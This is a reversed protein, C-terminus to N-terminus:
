IQQFHNTAQNHLTVSVNLWRCLVSWIMNTSLCEFFLHNASEVEEGCLNCKTDDISLIVRRRLLNSKTPLKDWMLSWAVTSAKLPIVYWVKEIM